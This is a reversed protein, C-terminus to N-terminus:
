PSGTLDLRGRNSNRTRSDGFRDPRLGVPWFGDAGVSGLGIPM